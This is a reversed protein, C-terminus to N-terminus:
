KGGEQPPISCYAGLLAKLGPRLTALYHQEYVVVWDWNRALSVLAYHMLSGKTVKVMGPLRIAGRDWDGDDRSFRKGGTSVPRSTAVSSAGSVWSRPPPPGSTTRPLARIGIVRS